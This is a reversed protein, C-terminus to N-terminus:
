CGLERLRSDPIGFHHAIEHVVVRKILNEIPEGTQNSVKIIPRRFISIRDPLVLMYGMGRKTKPVGQYLGLLLEGERSVGKSFDKQTPNERVVIELNEVKERLDVPLENIVRLVLKEMDEISIVNQKENAPKAPM